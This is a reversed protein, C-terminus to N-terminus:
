LHETKDTFVLNEVHTVTVQLGDKFTIITEGHSTHMSNVQSSAYDDFKITDNGSGGDVTDHGHPDAAIHFLDNGGGGEMTDGGTGAYMTDNGRGGELLMHGGSGAILLDDGSGGVLTSHGGEGGLLTDSGDGGVLLQHGGTGGVLSDNGAGGYVSDEGAGLQIVDNGKGAIVIDDGTDQLTVHDNGAGTVIMVDNSGHVTLNADGAVNEVIAKLDGGTTVTSTESTLVLLQADPDVPDTGDSIQVDITPHGHEDGHHHGHGHEEFTGKQLLYDIVAKQAAPDINPSLLHNLETRDLDYTAM